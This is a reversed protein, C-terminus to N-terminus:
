RDLVATGARTIVGRLRAPLRSDVIVGSVEDLACVRHPAVRGFKAREALVYSRTAHAIITRRTAAEDRHFDTLGAVADVGGSGLFAIDAHLGAFFAVAQADSLALDGARVRGGSVLVELRERGALEAAVLLSCTAVTARLTAPLARAVELATTGVDLVITMGNEVLGAGRAGIAQKAATASGSRQAFPAEEGVLPADLAAAGGHVRRLRGAQELTLLDRRVTEISVDLRRAL